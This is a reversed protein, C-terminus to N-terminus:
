WLDIPFERERIENMFATIQFYTSLSKALSSFRRSTKKENM